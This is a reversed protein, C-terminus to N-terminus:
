EIRLILWAQHQVAYQLASQAQRPIQDDAARASVPLERDLASNWRGAAASPKTQNVPGSLGVTLHAAVLQAGIQNACRRAQLRPVQTLRLAAAIIVM